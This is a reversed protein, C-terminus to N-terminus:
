RKQEKKTRTENDGDITKLEFPLMGVTETRLLKGDAAYVMVDHDGRRLSVGRVGSPENGITDGDVVVVSGTKLGRIFLHGALVSTRLTDHRLAAMGTTIKMDAVPSGLKFRGERILDWSVTAPIVRATRIGALFASVVGVALLLSFVIYHGVSFRRKAHEQFSSLLEVAEHNNGDEELSEVLLWYAEDGRRAFLLQRAATFLQHSLTHASLNHANKKWAVPVAAVARSKWLAACDTGSSPRKLPNVYVLADAFDAMCTGDLVQMLIRGASYVDARMLDVNGGHSWLEPAMYAPTGKATTVSSVAAELVSKSFGFDVFYLGNEPSLIINEPKLDRHVYGLQHIEALASIIADAISLRDGEALDTELLKELSVGRVWEMVMCISGRWEFADFVDPVCRARLNAQTQAEHLLEHRKTRNKEYVFKLAVCRDLAAQRVRYVSAFAGTGIRMPHSFGHPLKPIM